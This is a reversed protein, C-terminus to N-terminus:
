RPVHHPPQRTYKGLLKIKVQFNERQRFIMNENESWGLIGTMTYISYIQNPMSRFLMKFDM